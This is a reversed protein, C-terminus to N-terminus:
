RGAPFGAFRAAFGPNPRGAGGSNFFLTGGPQAHGTALHEIVAISVTAGDPHRYDLPVRATACRFGDDCPGWSLRPVRPAVATAASGKSIQSVPAASARGMGAPTLAALLGAAAVGLRIWRMARDQCRSWSRWM